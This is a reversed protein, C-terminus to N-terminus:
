SSMSSLYHYFPPSFEGKVDLIDDEYPEPGLEVSSGKKENSSDYSVRKLKAEPDAFASSTLISVDALTEGGPHHQASAAM